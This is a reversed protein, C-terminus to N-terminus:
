LVVIRIYFPSVPCTWRKPTVRSKNTQHCMVPVHHTNLILDHSTLVHTQPFKPEELGGAPTLGSAVFNLNTEVSQNVDVGAILM